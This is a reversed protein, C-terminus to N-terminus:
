YRRGYPQEIGRRERVRNVVYAIAAGVLGSGIIFLLGSLTLIGMNRLGQAAQLLQAGVADSQAQRAAEAKQEPTLDAEQKTMLRPFVPGEADAGQEPPAEAAPPPPADAALVALPSTLLVAALFLTRISM